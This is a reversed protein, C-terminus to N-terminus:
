LLPEGSGCNYIEYQTKQKQIAKKIFDVLDEAYLFDRIEKGTGWVELYDKARM